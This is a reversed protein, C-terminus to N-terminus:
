RHSGHKKKRRLVKDLYKGALNDERQIWIFHLALWDESIDYLKNIVQKYLPKLHEKKVQYEGRIQKIIIESDGCFLIDELSGYNNKAYAVASILAFYELENNTKEDSIKNYIQKNGVEDVICIANLATSGDFFINNM